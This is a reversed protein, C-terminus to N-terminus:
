LICKFESPFFIKLFKLTESFRAAIYNSIKSDNCYAGATDCEILVYQLKKSLYPVNYCPIGSCNIEAM